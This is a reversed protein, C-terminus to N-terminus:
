PQRLLVNYNTRTDVRLRSIRQNEREFTVVTDKFGFTDTGYYSLSETPSGPIATNTFTIDDGQAEIRVTSPRGRGRGAFVGVYQSIDGSYRRSRNPGKGLVADVIQSGMDRLRIPGSTNQLIVVILDDDPYYESESLFGSISGGHGITRRGDTDYLALGMGYRLKTGDNLVGPSTMQSYSEPKLLQGGHLSKNWAVLDAANSCLSGASYPWLHSLFPKLVLADGDKQYGHAHGKRISREDCYYSNTMGVKDFLKEQVFQAYSQGSLREIILGLLFFASNNYIQEEGPEFTFPKSSFMSVLEQRPRTLMQFDRFERLETYGQIGSTHNLLNRITVRRNQTPYDPIHKSLEDNLSLKGQEALLLISAATFQKTLSGIEYTNSARTPVELEVDALGYGKMVVTEGRRVVAVSVGAVNTATIHAKVIADIADSTSSQSAADLCGLLLGIATYCVIRRHSM